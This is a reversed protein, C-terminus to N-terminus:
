GDAETDNAWLNHLVTLFRKAISTASVGGHGQSDLLLFFYNGVILTVFAIGARGLDLDGDEGLADTLKRFVQACMLMVVSGAPSKEEHHTFSASQKFIEGLAITISVLLQDLPETQALLRDGTEPKDWRKLQVPGCHTSGKWM